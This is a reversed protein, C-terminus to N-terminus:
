IFYKSKGISTIIHIIFLLFLILNILFSKILMTKHLSFFVPCPISNYRHLSSLFLLFSVFLHISHLISWLWIISLDHSLIYIDDDFVYTNHLTNLQRHFDLTLQDPIKKLPNTCTKNQRLIIYSNRSLFCTIKTQSHFM